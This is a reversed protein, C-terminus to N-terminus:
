LILKSTSYKSKLSGNHFRMATTGGHEGQIHNHEKRKLCYWLFLLKIVEKNRNLGMLSTKRYDKM